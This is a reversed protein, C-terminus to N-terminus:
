EKSVDIQISFFSFLHDIKQIDYELPKSAKRAVEIFGLGGGKSKEDPVRRLQEKYYRRLEKKDMRKIRDLKVRLKEVSQNEIVNGSLVYYDKDTFGAILMGLGLAKHKEGTIKEWNKKASYNNINQLLEVVVSFLRYTATTDAGEVKMKEKLIEAVDRVITESVPGNFGFFIGHKKYENMLKLPNCMM